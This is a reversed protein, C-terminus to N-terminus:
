KVAYEQGCCAVFLKGSNCKMCSIMTTAKQLIGIPADDCMLLNCQLTHVLELSFSTAIGLRPNTAWDSYTRSSIITPNSYKVYSRKTISPSDGPLLVTYPDEWERFTGKCSTIHVLLIERFNTLGIVVGIHPEAYSPVPIWLARGLSPVHIGTM